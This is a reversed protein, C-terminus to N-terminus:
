ADAPDVVKLRNTDIKVSPGMTPALSIKRLYRGKASAPKARLLEDLVAHYNEVLAPTDFSAKGIPVRYAAEPVDGKAIALLSTLRSESALLDYFGADLQQEAVRAAAELRGAVRASCWLCSEAAWTSSRRWRSRSSRM